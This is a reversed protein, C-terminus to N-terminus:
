ILLFSFTCQSLYDCSYRMSNYMLKHNYIPGCECGDQAACSSHAAARSGRPAAREAGDEGSGLPAEEHAPRCKIEPDPFVIYPSLNLSQYYPQFSMTQLVLYIQTRAM